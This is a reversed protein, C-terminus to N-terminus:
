DSYGNVLSQIFRIAPQTIGNPAQKSWGDDLYSAYDTNNIFDCEPFNFDMEWQSEFYGTDVPSIEQIYDFTQECVDLFDEESLRRTEVHIIIAPM